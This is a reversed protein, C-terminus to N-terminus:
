STEERAPLDGWRKMGELSVEDNVEDSVKDNLLINPFVLVSSEKCHERSCVPLVMEVEGNMDLCFLCYGILDMPGLPCSVSTTQFTLEAHKGFDAFAVQGIVHYSDNNPKPITRNLHLVGNQLFAVDLFHKM